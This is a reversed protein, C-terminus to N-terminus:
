ARGQSSQDERDPDRRAGDGAAGDPQRRRDHRHREIAPAPGFRDPRPCERAAPGSAAVNRARDLAPRPHRAHRAAGRDSMACGVLEALHDEAEAGDMQRRGIRLDCRKRGLFSKALAYSTGGFEFDVEVAPSAGPDSWPRLADLTGTKHRELFATRIAAAITSKGAENPAAFLNLGAGLDGIEVPARFRKFNELRLRTIKM